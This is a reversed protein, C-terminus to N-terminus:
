QQIELHNIFTVGKKIRKNFVFPFYDSLCKNLFFLNPQCVGRTQM